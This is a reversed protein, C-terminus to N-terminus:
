AHDNEKKDCVIKLVVWTVSCAPPPAVRYANCALQGSVAVGNCTRVASSTRSAARAAPPLICHRGRSQVDVTPTLWQQGFAGSDPHM